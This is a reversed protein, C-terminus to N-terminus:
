DEELRMNRMIKDFTDDNRTNFPIWLTLSRGRFVRGSYHDSTTFLKYDEMREIFKDLEEVTPIPPASTDETCARRFKEVDFRPNEASLWGIFNEIASAPAKEDRLIAAIKTFQKKTLM